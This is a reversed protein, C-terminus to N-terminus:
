AAARGAARGGVGAPLASRTAARRRAPRGRALRRASLRRGTTPCSASRRTRASLGRRDGLGRRLADRRARDPRRGPARRPLVAAAALGARRARASGDDRDRGAQGDSRAAPRAAAAGALGELAYAVGWQSGLESWRALSEILLREAEDPEDEALAVDALDSESLSLGWDDGLERRLAASEVQLARATALDGQYFAVRGLNNLNTAEGARAGADRNAAVAQQLM